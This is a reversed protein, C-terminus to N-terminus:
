DAPEFEITVPRPLNMKAEVEIAKLIASPVPCATHKLSESAKMYIESEAHNKLADRLSIEELQEGLKKLMECDSEIKVSMKMQGLNSVDVISVMGCAGANVKVKTM